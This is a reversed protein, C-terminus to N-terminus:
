AADKRDRLGFFKPGSWQTGTISRAVESLSRWTKGNWEVQGAENVTVVHAVGNWVRVTVYGLDFLRHIDTRLLLGNSTDHEGGASFAKIHAADLIPLTKEGSVACRRDYADTVALRFAGQGLRPRVLIPKGFRDGDLVSAASREAIADWIYQGDLTDTSYGKGVVTNLAFSEPVPLWQERSWFFPRTLIRCGIIPDARLDLLATDNRYGAIRRRM